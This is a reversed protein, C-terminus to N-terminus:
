LTYRSPKIQIRDIDSNWYSKGAVVLLVVTRDAPPETKAGLDFVLDM